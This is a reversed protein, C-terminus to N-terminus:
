TGVGHVKRRKRRAGWRMDRPPAKLECDDCSVESEWGTIGVQNIGLAGVKLELGCRTMAVNNKREKLMHMLVTVAAEDAM